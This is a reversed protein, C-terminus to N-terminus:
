PGPPADPRPPPGPATTEPPLVPAAWPSPAPAGPGPTPGAMTGAPAGPVTSPAQWDRLGTGSAAAPPAWLVALLAAVMGLVGAVVVLWLGPAVGIVLRGSELADRAVADPIGAESAASLFQDNLTFVDYLAPGAALLGGVLAGRLGLLAGPSDGFARLAPVLMALGGVIALKGEWGDVGSATRVVPGVSMEAWALFSGAIAAVGAALALAPPLTRRV